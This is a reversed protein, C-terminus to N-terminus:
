EGLWGGTAQLPSPSNAASIWVAVARRPALDSLESTPLKLKARGKGWDAQRWRLVLFDHSLQKGRNEGARVKSQIGSGLLAVHVTLQDTSIVGAPPSYSVEITDGDVTASLAGGVMEGAALMQGDRVRWEEGGRVFGPTYVSRAKWESAYAYQRETYSKDAFKDPWGLRDWYSVHWAVPVFERWLGDDDRRQSLWREAPPCSSCGESTFLELLPVPAPGSEYVRAAAAASLASWGAVLALFVLRKMDCSLSLALRSNRRSLLHPM